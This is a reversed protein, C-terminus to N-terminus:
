LTELTGLEGRILRVAADSVVWPEGPGLLDPLPSCPVYAFQEVRWNRWPNNLRLATRRRKLTRIKM